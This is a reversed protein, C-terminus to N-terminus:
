IKPIAPATAPDFGGEQLFQSPELEKDGFTLRQHSSFLTLSQKARTVAVYALCRESELDDESQLHGGPFIEEEMGILYVHNWELGKAGHITSVVVGNDDLQRNSSTIEFAFESAIDYLSYNDHTRNYEEQFESLYSKLTEINALHREPKKLSNIWEIYGTRTLLHDVLQPLTYHNKNELIGQYVAVFDAIKAQLGKPLETVHDSLLFEIIGMDYSAAAELIKSLAVQGIGRKPRDLVGIFAYIDRPNTYIKIFNLTDIMVDSSMFDAFKTTDNVPIKAKELERNLSAFAMRSRMLIAIDRPKVGAKIRHKISEIIYRSEIRELDENKFYRVGGFQAPDLRLGQQLPKRYDSGLQNNKIISNGVDLIQQYSRYNHTLNYVLGQRAHELMLQPKGGRFGYISQDVDGIITLHNGGIARVFVDQLPNTDQYEDVITYVIRSALQSLMGSQAMLYGIFLIQDYNVTNTERSSKLSAMFVEHAMKVVEMVLTGGQLADSTLANNFKAMRKYTEPSYQGSALEQPPATNVLVSIFNAVATYHRKLVRTDDFWKLIIDDYRPENLLNSYMIVSSREDIISFAPDLGVATANDRIIKSIVSHFTGVQIRKFDHESVMNSLRVRLDNSAARTFSVLLVRGSTYTQLIRQLRGLIVTTKGTGAGSMGVVTQDLPANILNMQEQNYQM